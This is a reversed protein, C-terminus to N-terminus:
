KCTQALTLEEALQKFFWQVAKPSTAAKYYYMSLTLKEDYTSAIVLSGPAPVLPGVVYASVAKATGFFLPKESIVGVNSLVTPVSNERKGGEVREKFWEYMADFGMRAHVEFTLAMPFGLATTKLETMAKSVRELTGVFKEGPIRSIAPNVVGSLNTITDAKKGPLHRRLDVTVGMPMPLGAEPYIMEFLARYIATLLMDNVTAGHRKGNAKIKGLADQDVQYIELAPKANQQTVCPFVWGPRPLNVDLDWAKQAEPLSIYQFIQQQGRELAGTVTQQYHPNAKLATYLESLLAVCDKIGGGDCCAHNVKVALTDKGGNRFVRVHLLPDLCSDMPAHIFQQLEREVNETELVSCWSIREIDERLEWYSQQPDEVLRCGLIPERQIALRLAKKLIGEEVQGDLELVCHVQHNYGFYGYIHNTIDQAGAPIRVTGQQMSM